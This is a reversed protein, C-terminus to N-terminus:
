LDAAEANCTRENTMRARSQAVLDFSVAACDGIQRIMFRRKAPLLSSPCSRFPYRSMIESRTHIQQDMIRLKIILFVPAADAPSVATIAVGEFECGLCASLLQHRKM